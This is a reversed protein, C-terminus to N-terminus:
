ARPKKLPGITVMAVALSGVAGSVMGVTRMLEAPNNSRSAMSLMAVFFALALVLLLGSALVVRQHRSM